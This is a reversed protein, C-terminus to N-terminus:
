VWGLWELLRYEGFVLFGCAFLFGAIPFIGMADTTDMGLLVRISWPIFLQKLLAVIAATFSDVAGHPTDFALWGLFLYAPINLIVLTAILM